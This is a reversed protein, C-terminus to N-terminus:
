ALAIMYTLERVDRDGDPLFDIYKWHSYKVIDVRKERFIGRNCPGRTVVRERDLVVIIGLCVLREEVLVQYHMSSLQIPGLEM